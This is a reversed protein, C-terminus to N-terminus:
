RVVHFVRTGLEGAEVSSVSLTYAGPALRRTDFRLDNATQRVDDIVVRGRADIVKVLLSGTPRDRLRIHISEDAPVPYVLFAAQADHEEIGIAGIAKAFAYQGKHLTNVDIWGSGNTLSGATLVQDPHIQWPEDANPRWVMVMGTEDGNILAQDFQGPTAGLYMFRARLVTGEPWLGDVNWYHTGSVQAISWGLDDQDAGSWIHEVRVLTSDTLTTAYLRFDVRPLSSAFSVGPVVTLEHDMRAQNLRHHRNLVAMVPEFPCAVSLETLLGSATIVEEHVQGNAGILTLDLPTDGHLGTTGYLKQGIRLDVLWGPNGEQATFSRVEFVSYGPSFVWDEFFPHMDRGTIAELTDRWMEPTIVTDALRVQSERMAERFLTDGLYGRMNHMVAAGKYYTHTGYIHEDPMPSLAQYGDDDGHATTLIDLLNDKVMNVMASRGNLWEEFLHGSYEAPGEKLWMHNHVRPTVKDGWWHHGLEHAYLKRNRGLPQGPMFDPYAINTVIELAGDTTLVYGIRGYPYPGYWHELADICAGLDGFKGVMASLQTPKARLSVPIDGYAGTHTFNSEAYNAVAIASVHTPIAHPLDYSRIVTDGGLQVEGILDGQGLLWRGGASKVHFTYAAREVFSDFCPYWVKGFNPPVTTLGIGLNYIYNSAFYFGGWNPDRVPTGHYHVTLQQEEGVMAEDDLQVSLFQGDHTHTLPGEAGIVSDVTLALLDFRIAYQGTMRATYTVTTAATISQGTYDTVDITIDYHLIDFTDSRAITEDIQDRELLTLAQPRPPAQGDRLVLCGHMRPQAYVHVSAAALLTAFLARVLHKM